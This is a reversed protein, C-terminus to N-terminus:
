RGHGPEHISPRPFAELRQRAKGTLRRTGVKKRVQVNVWYIHCAKVARAYQLGHDSVKGALLKRKARALGTNCLISHPLKLSLLSFFSLSSSTSILVNV